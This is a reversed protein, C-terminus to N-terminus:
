RRTRLLGFPPAHAPASRKLRTSREYRATAAPRREHMAGSSRGPYTNDYSMTKTGSWAQRLWYRPRPSPSGRATGDSASTLQSVRQRAPIATGSPSGRRCRRSRRVRHASASGRRDASREARPLTTTRKSGTRRQAATSRGIPRAPRTRLAEMPAAPPGARGSLHSARPPHSPTPARRRHSTRTRRASPTPARASQRTTTPSDRM